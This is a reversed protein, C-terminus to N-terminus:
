ENCAIAKNAWMISEELKTIAIAKERSPPTLHNIMHALAKGADRIAVYRSPQDDKPPHYTFSREIRSTTTQEGFGASMNSQRDMRLRDQTVENATRADREM